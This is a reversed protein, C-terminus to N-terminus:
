KKATLLPWLALTLLVLVAVGLVIFPTMKNRSKLLADLDEEGTSEIAMDGEDKPIFFLTVIGPIGLLVVAVFFNAYGLMDSLAGSVAGAISAGLAMLGTAVAYSSTPYPTGRAVIMLYVMYASFGFGYGLQDTVILWKVTEVGPKQMAVYIYFFNPLNLALVMPWISKRFGFQSIFMGGLITDTGLGLGGQEAPAKLFLGSVKGIMSEGFRYFLIFALIWGIKARNLFAAIADAFRVKEESPPAVPEPDNANPSTAVEAAAHARHARDAAPKPMLLSNLIWGIGFVGAGVLIAVSWARAVPNAIATALSDYIGVFPQALSSAAEGKGHKELQGAIIFLYGTCFINALRYFTSRVGVFFAQAGKDMSLLYFGDAAVDHTASLFAMVLMVALTGAFWAPSQVAWALALLGGLMVTQMLVIWRRRTMTLEVVPGWLMKLTWPLAIITTWFAIQTDKIGAGPYELALAKFLVASAGTVIM